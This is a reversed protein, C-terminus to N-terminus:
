QSYEKKMLPIIRNARPESAVWMETVGLIRLYNEYIKQTMDEEFIAFYKM